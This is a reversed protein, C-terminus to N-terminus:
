DISGRPAVWLQELGSVAAIAEFDADYHLVGADAEIAVAATLVDATGAARVRGTNWLAGQISRACTVAKPTVELAPLGGLSDRLRNWQDGSRATYGLELMTTPSIACFRERAWREMAAAVAPYRWSRVLASTDILLWRPSARSM